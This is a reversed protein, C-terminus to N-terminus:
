SIGLNSEQDGPPGDISPSVGLFPNPPFSIDRPCLSPPSPFGTQRSFFPTLGAEAKCAAQPSIGPPSAQRSEAEEPFLLPREPTQNPLLPPAPQSGAWGDPPGLAPGPEWPPVRPGQRVLLRKKGQPLGHPLPMPVVLGLRPGPWHSWGADRPGPAATVWMEAGAVRGDAQEKPGSM